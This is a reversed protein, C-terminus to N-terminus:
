DCAAIFINKGSHKIKLKFNWIFITSSLAVNKIITSYMTFYKCMGHTTQPFDKIDSNLNTNNPHFTSSNGRFSRCNM